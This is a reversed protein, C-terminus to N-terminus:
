GAKARRSVARTQRTMEALRRDVEEFSVALRTSVGEEALSIGYLTHMASMTLKNHTIVIFQTNASHQQLLGLFRTINAEDLPADVEDLLCFPSPKAEFVAFLLAVAALAKEGGSLLTISRTEKGPPRVLIEIGAELVDAEPDLILDGSGGGFLKRVLAQFNERVKEFTEQFAQRSRHSLERIIELEHRRARELDAKQNSLFEARAELEDQEQIADLNAGSMRELKQRLEEARANVEAWDTQEGDLLALVGDRLEVAEALPVTRPGQQGEEDPGRRQAEAYWRAVPRSGEQPADDRLEEIQLEAFLPRERWQEPSLELSGLNVGWEQAAREQLSERRLRAEKDKLKLEGLVRDVEQRRAALSDLEQERAAIGRQMAECAATRQQISASLAEQQARLQEQTQRASAVKEAAEREHAACSEREKRMSDLEGRLRDM